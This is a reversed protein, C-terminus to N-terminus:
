DMPEHQVSQQELDLQQDLQQQPQLSPLLQLQQQQQQQRQKQGAKAKWVWSRVIVNEPWIDPDVFKEADIAAICVRFASSDTFKTKTDGCSIVEVGSNEFIYATLDSANFQKSVNSVCFM